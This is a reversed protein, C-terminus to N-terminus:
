FTVGLRLSLAYISNLGLGRDQITCGVDMTLHCKKTSPFRVGLSPRAYFGGTQNGGAWFNGGLLFGYGINVDYYMSASGKFFYGRVNAYAPMYLEYAPVNFGIGAGVSLLRHFQYGVVYDLSLGSPLGGSAGLFRENSFMLGGMISHYIGKDKVHLPRKSHITKTKDSEKVKEKEIKIVESSNYVLISGGLIRIKITKKPDYELVEGRVIEGNELHVVDKMESQASLDLAVLLAFSFILLFRYIM